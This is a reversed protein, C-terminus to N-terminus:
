RTQIHVSAAAPLVAEGTVMLKGDADANIGTSQVIVQCKGGFLHRQWGGDAFQDPEHSSPDGNGVGIIRMGGNTSFHLLTAADPVERGAKDVVSCNFVIADKGDAALGPKSAAVVIRYPDGTTEVASV